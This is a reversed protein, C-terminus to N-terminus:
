KINRWDFQSVVPFNKDNILRQYVESCEEPSYTEDIIGKFDIRGLACLKM